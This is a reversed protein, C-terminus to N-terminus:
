QPIEHEKAHHDYCAIVPLNTASANTCDVMYVFNTGVPIEFVIGVSDFDLEHEAFRRYRTALHVVYRAALYSPDNFRPNPLTKCIELFQRLDRGTSEPYGDTHRYIIVEGDVTNDLFHITARTTLTM